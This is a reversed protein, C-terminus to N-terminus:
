CRQGDVSRFARLIYPGQLRADHALPHASESHECVCVAPCRVQGPIPENTHFPM